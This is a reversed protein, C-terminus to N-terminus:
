KDKRHRCRSGSASGPSESVPSIGIEERGSLLRGHDAPAPWNKAGVTTLQMVDAYQFNGSKFTRFMLGPFFRFIGSMGRLM